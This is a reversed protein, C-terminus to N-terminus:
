VAVREPEATFSKVLKASVFDPDGKSERRWGFLGVILGLGYALHMLPFIVPLSFLLSPRRQRLAAKGSAAVTLVLYLGLPLLALGQIESSFELMLTPLLALYVIFAPPIFFILDKSDFNTFIHQARGWGYFMMQRIFESIVKRRPRRVVMGPDYLFRHGNKRLRKLLENEENPYLRVNFGSCGLLVERRILLNCLILEEGRVERVGGLARGRARTPGTGFWSAIASGFANELWSADSCTLAPGGVAAIEAGSFNPISSKLADSDIISDDDLFYLLEGTAKLAAENRQLSPSRGSVVIVEIRAQPYNLQSIAKLADEPLLESRTPIIFSIDKVPFQSKSM